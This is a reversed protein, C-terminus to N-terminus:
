SGKHEAISKKNVITIATAHVISHDMVLKSLRMSGINANIRVAMQHFFRVDGMGHKAEANWFLIHLQWRQMMYLFWSQHGELTPLHM